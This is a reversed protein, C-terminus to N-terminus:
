ADKPFFSPDDLPCKNNLKLKNLKLKSYYKHLTIQNIDSFHMNWTEARNIQKAISSKKLKAKTPNKAAIRM